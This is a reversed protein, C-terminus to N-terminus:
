TQKYADAYKNDDNASQKLLALYQHGDCQKFCIYRVPTYVCMCVQQGTVQMSVM